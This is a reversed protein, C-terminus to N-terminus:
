LSYIPEKKNIWHDERKKVEKRKATFEEVVLKYVATRPIAAPNFWAKKGPHYHDMLIELAEFKEKEDEIMLIHGKGMVSEYAYTCYGREEFYQLEHSCDMEFSARNDKEILQLKQGELASHFYFTLKEDESSVGFNLPLIYPYGDNNLAIRCIDCRKIIDYIEMFDNIQRDKRRM